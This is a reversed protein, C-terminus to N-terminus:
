GASLSNKIVSVFSPLLGCSVPQGVFHAPVQSPTTELVQARDGHVRMELRATDDIVMHFLAEAILVYCFV